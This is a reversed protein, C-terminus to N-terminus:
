LKHRSDDQCEPHSFFHLFDWWYKWSLVYHHRLQSTM